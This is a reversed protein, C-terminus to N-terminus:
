RGVLIAGLVLGLVFVILGVKIWDAPRVRRRYAGDSSWWLQIAPAQHAAAPRGATAVSGQGVEDRPGV